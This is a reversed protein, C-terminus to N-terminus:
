NYSIKELEHGVGEFIKYEHQINLANLYLHIIENECYLIDTTGIYIKIQLKEANQKILSLISGEQFYKTDGMMEKYMEVAKEPPEGFGNYDPLYHHFTGAFANVTSFLEPYKVALYFAMGGGMSFGSISRNERASSTKYKGEIHPILENIIMTEVPLNEIDEIVPSSNPFVTISQRSSYMKELTWLYSSENSQWGHLYYEVPHKHTNEKHEPPLYICYGIEHGYLKSYFTEHTVNHPLKDPPNVYNMKCEM